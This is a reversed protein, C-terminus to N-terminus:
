MPISGTTTFLVPLGVALAQMLEPITEGEITPMAFIDLSRFVNLLDERFGLLLVDRGLGLREIHARILPEEPGEGVILFTVGRHQKLVHAAAEM